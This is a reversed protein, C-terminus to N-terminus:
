APIGENRPPLKQEIARAAATAAGGGAHLALHMREFEHTLADRRGADRFWGLVADALKAPTCDRQMLEPVMTKGALVNPLSYVDTKLMGLGKVIAHTFPAIRYGVVMPRKALMAELAATGSALLVVDAAIMARHAHNDLIAPIPFRSDPIAFASDRVIRDIAGRCHANAAPIVIRLGPIETAVRRAADLFIAGLRHIESLRSGPLVALVPAAADLGLERRAAERDPVLPFRDALPHGVFRADVGHRTYIAPEMPFLCLVRDASQGIKEARNERWAWVSPSVYHMPRIGAHKLKRELGLNFDPADIGIFIDPKLEILRKALSARLRLLRPLHRLVEALGMVSLESVDHWADLGAARMRPGGVGVFRAGPFRARLADILDAGLQDGSDEGAVLAFVTSTTQRESNPMQFPASRRTILNPTHLM